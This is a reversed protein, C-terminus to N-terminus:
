LEILLYEVNCPAVNALAYVNAHKWPLVCGELPGLKVSYQATVAGFEVFNTPDNNRVAMYGITGVDNKTLVEESTGVAQVGSEFKSGTQDAVFSTSLSAAAQDKAYRLTSSLRIESAM